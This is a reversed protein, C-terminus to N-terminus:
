ATVISLAYIRGTTFGLAILAQPCVKIPSNREYDRHPKSILTVAMILLGRRLMYMKRHSAVHQVRSRCCCYKSICLTEPCSPMDAITVSAGGVQDSALCSKLSVTKSGFLPGGDLNTHWLFLM